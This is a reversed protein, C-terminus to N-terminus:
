RLVVFFKIILEISGPKLRCKIVNEGIFQFNDTFSLDLM